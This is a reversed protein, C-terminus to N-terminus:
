QLFSFHDDLEVLNVEHDCVHKECISELTSVDKKSSPFSRKTYQYVSGLLSMEDGSFEIEACFTETRTNRCIVYRNDEFVDIYKFGGNEVSSMNKVDMIRNDKTIFYWFRDTRGVKRGDKLTEITHFKSM